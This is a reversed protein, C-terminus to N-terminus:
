ATEEHQGASSMMLLMACCENPDAANITIAVPANTKKDDLPCWVCSIDQRTLVILPSTCPTSRPEDHANRPM